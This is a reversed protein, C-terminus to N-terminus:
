ADEYYVDGEIDPAVPVIVLYCDGLHVLLNWAQLYDGFVQGDSEDDSLYWSVATQDFALWRTKQPLGGEDRPKPCNSVRVVMYGNM